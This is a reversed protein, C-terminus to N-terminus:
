NLNQRELSNSFISANRGRPPYFRGPRPLEFWAPRCGLISYEPRIAFRATYLFHCNNVCGPLAPWVPRFVRSKPCSGPVICSGSVPLSPAAATGSAKLRPFPMRRSKLIM